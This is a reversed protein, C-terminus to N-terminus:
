YKNLYNNNLIYLLALTEAPIDKEIISDVNECFNDCQDLIKIMKDIKFILTTHWAKHLNPYNDRKKYLKTEINMLKNILKYMNESLLKDEANM